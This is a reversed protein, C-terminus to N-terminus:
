RIRNMLTWKRDNFEGESLAGSKYLDHLRRIEVMPDTPQVVVTRIEQRPTAAQFDRYVEDMRDADEGLLAYTGEESVVDVRYLTRVRNSRRVTTESRDVDHILGHKDAHAEGDTVSIEAVLGTHAVWLTTGDWYFAQGNLWNPKRGLFELVAQARARQQRGRLRVHLAAVAIWVPVLYPAEILGYHWLGFALVVIWVAFFIPWYAKLPRKTDQTIEEVITRPVHAPRRQHHAIAIPLALLTGLVWVTVFAILSM